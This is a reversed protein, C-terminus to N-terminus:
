HLCSPGPSSSRHATPTLPRQPASSLMQRAQKFPRPVHTLVEGKCSRIHKPALLLVVTRSNSDHVCLFDTLISSPHKKQRREEAEHHITPTATERRFYISNELLSHASTAPSFWLMWLVFGLWGRCGGTCHGGRQQPSATKVNARHSCASIIVFVGTIVMVEAGWMGRGRLGMWCRHCQNLALFHWCTDSGHSVGHVHLLVM